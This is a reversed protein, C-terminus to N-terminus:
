CCCPYFLFILFFLFLVFSCVFFGFCFLFFWLFSCSFLSLHGSEAQIKYKKTVELAIELIDISDLGLAGGYLPADPDVDAPTVPLNLAQIVLSTMEPLLLQTRAEIDSATIMRLEEFCAIEIPCPLWRHSHASVVSRSAAVVDWVVHQKTVLPRICSPSAWVFNGIQWARGAGVQRLQWHLWLSSFVATAVHLSPCANRALDIGKLWALDPQPSNFAAPVATPWLYFCLLGIGCVASICAGYYALSRFDPQLAPPFTTYVWLSLYPIWGWTADPHGPRALDATDAHGSVASVETCLLVPCFVVV